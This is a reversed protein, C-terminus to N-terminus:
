KLLSANMKFKIFISLLILIMSSFYFSQDVGIRDWIQSIIIQGLISGIAISVRFRSLRGGINTFLSRNIRDRSYIDTINSILEFIFWLVVIITLRNIKTFLLMLIGQLFFSIIFMNKLQMNTFKDYIKAAIINSIGYVVFFILGVGEIEVRYADHLFIIIRNIILAIGFAEITYVLTIEKLWKLDIDEERDKTKRQNINSLRCLYITSYLEILGSIIFILPISNTYIYIWMLAFGGISAGISVRINEKSIYDKYESEKITERKYPELSSLYLKTFLSKFFIFIYLIYINHVLGYSSLFIASGINGLIILKIRDKKDSLYSFYYDIVTNILIPIAFAIAITIMNETQEWIYFSLFIFIVGSDFNGWFSHKLLYKYM